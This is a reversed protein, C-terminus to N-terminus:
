IQCQIKRVIYKKAKFQQIQKQFYFYIQFLINIVQQSKQHIQQSKMKQNHKFKKKKLKKTKKTLKVWKKIQLKLKQQQNINQQKKNKRQQKRKNLQNVRKKRESNLLLFNFQHHPYMLILNQILFTCQDRFNLVKEKTFVFQETQITINIFKFCYFQSKSNIKGKIQYINRKNNKKHKKNIQKKIQKNIQSM